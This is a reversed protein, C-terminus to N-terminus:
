KFRDFILQLHYKHEEESASAILVDGIYAYAYTLGRLVENIFRQFIQAANRLGFPMCNFEFLGFHTTITTKHVDEAVPIQHYARVLDLQSFIVAGHLTSIIDQFHPIPYRNPFTISNLARYDGCPKCDSFKKPVMHLASSWNSSSPWIIGLEMMHDFESKAITLREPPLRHTCYSVPPGSTVIHHVVSHKIPTNTFSHTIKPYGALLSTFPNSSFLLNIITTLSHKNQHTCIINAMLNTSSDMLAQHTVDVILSHHRLFDARLIPHKVDAVTFVWHYPRRLGLNLTLSRTNYTPIPIGNTAQLNVGTQRHRRDSQLPPIVSVEAGTDILFHHHSTRDFTFFLRSHSLSPVSTAM